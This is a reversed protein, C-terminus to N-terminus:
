STQNAVTNEILVVAECNPCACQNLAESKSTHIIQEEPVGTIAGAEQILQLVRKDRLSYFIYRGYRRSVLIGASRLGMLHQSIYAQRYGLISELHCVCAEDEGIALLIQLRAPKSINELLNSILKRNKRDLINMIKFINYLM